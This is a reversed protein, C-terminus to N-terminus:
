LMKVLCVKIVKNKEYGLAFSSLSDSWCIRWPKGLAKKGHLSAGTYKRDLSFMQVCNNAHDCLFLHGRGDATIGWPRIDKTMGDLKGKVQWELKNTQMDYANISGDCSVIIVFDKNGYHVYSM